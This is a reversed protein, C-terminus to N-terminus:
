GVEITNGQVYVFLQDVERGEGRDRGRRCTLTQFRGTAMGSGLTDGLTAVM